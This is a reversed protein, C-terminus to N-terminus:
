GDLVDRIARALDCAVVPKMVLRTIGAARLLKPTENLVHQVRM